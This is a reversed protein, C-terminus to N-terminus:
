SRDCGGQGWICSGSLGSALTLSVFRELSLLSFDFGETLNRMVYHVAKILNKQRSPLFEVSSEAGQSL